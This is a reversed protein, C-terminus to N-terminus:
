VEFHAPAYGQERIFDDLEMQDGTNRKDRIQVEWAILMDDARDLAVLYASRAEDSIEYDSTFSANPPTELPTEDSHTKQLIM